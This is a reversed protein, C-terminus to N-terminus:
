IELERKQLWLIGLVTKGDKIEGTEIMQWVKALPIKEYMIIEDPDPHAEKKVLNTALYLHMYESSFGPATYFSALKEWKEASYGTEEELERRASYAPAEGKELKGAPLEYLIEKVPYRYQKVLIIEKESTLAVIAVAGPHVVMERTSINGNSLTVEDVCYHLYRGKIETIRKNFKEDVKVGEKAYM